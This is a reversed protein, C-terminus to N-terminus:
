SPSSINEIELSILEIIKEKPTNDFEQRNMSWIFPTGDKRQLEFQILEM